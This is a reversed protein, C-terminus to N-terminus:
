GTKNLEMAKIEYQEIMALNTVGKEGQLKDKFLVKKKLSKKDQAFVLDAGM